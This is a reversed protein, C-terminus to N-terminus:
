SCVYTSYLYGYAQLRCQDNHLICLNLDCQWMNMHCWEGNWMEQIDILCCRVSSV